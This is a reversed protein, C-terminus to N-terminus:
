LYSTVIWYRKEFKAQRQKKIHIMESILRKNYNIEEDLMEVNDWDFDHNYELRHNTIVSTQPSSRRIHNRHESIRTNLM